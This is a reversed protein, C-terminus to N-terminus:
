SECQLEKWRRWFTVEAGHHIGMADFAEYRTLGQERLAGWERVQDDTYPSRTKREIGHRDLLAFVTRDDIGPRTAAYAKVSKPCGNALLDEQVDAIAEARQMLSSHLAFRVLLPLSVGIREAMYRLTWRAEFLPDFMPRLKHDNASSGITGVAAAIVGVAEEASHWAPPAEYAGLVAQGWAFFAAGMDGNTHELAAFFVSPSPVDVIPIEGGLSVVGELVNAPGNDVFVYPLLRSSGAEQRVLARKESRSVVKPKPGAAERKLHARERRRERGRKEYYRRDKERKKEGTSPM